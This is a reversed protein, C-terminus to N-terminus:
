FKTNRFTLLHRAPLSKFGSGCPSTAVLERKGRKKERSINVRKRSNSSKQRVSITTIKRIEAKCVPTHMPFYHRGLEMLYCANFGVSRRLYALMVRGRPILSHFSPQNGSCEKAEYYSCASSYLGFNDVCRRSLGFDRQLAFQNGLFKM